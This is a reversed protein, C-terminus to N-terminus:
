RTMIKDVELTLSNLSLNGGERQLHREVVIEKMIYVQDLCAQIIIKTERLNWM